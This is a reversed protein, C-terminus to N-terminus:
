WPRPAQPPNLFERRSPDLHYVDAGFLADWYFREAERRRTFEVEFERFQRLEPITYFVRVRYIGHDHFEFRVQNATYALAQEAQLAYLGLCLCGVFFGSYCHRLM